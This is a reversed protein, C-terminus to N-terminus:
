LGEQALRSLLDIPTRGNAAVHMRVQVAEDFGLRELLSEEALPNSAVGGRVIPSADRALVEKLEWANPNAGVAARIWDSEDRSLTELTNRPTNPNKAVTQRVWSDSDAGLNALVERATFLRSALQSRVQVNSDTILEDQIDIDIVTCTRVYAIREEDSMQSINEITVQSWGVDNAYSVSSGDVRRRLADPCHVNQAVARRVGDSDDESLTYILDLPLDRRELLSSRVERKPHHALSDFLRSPLSPNATLAEAVEEGASAYDDMLWEPISPNMALNAPIEWYEDELLSELMDAPLRPNFASMARVNDSTFEDDSMLPSMEQTTPSVM